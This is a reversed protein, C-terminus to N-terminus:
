VIFWGDLVYFDCLQFLDCLGGGRPLITGYFPGVLRVLKGGFGLDRRM